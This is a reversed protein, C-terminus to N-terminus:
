IKVGSLRSTVTFVNAAHPMPHPEDLYQVLYADGWPSAWQFEQGVHSDYHALITDRDTSSIRRHILTIDYQTESYLRRTRLRGSEARDAQIGAQPVIDSGEDALISPYNAM